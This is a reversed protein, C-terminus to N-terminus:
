VNHGTLGTDRLDPGQAPSGMLAPRTEFDEVLRIIRAGLDPPSFMNELWNPDPAKLELNLMEELSVILNSDAFLRRMPAALRDRYYDVYDLYIMCPVGARVVDLAATSTCTIGIAATALATEMDVDTVHLNGPLDGLDELLDSYPYRERHLHRTNENPLHRLKIFVRRDPHARALAVVAHLVHKRARKTFPSIAQTFFYIDRRTEKEADSLPIPRLVAPHGFDVHQWGGKEGEDLGEKFTYYAEIAPKPFLFVGDCNRRRTFGNQPFFDLGGLFGIICPRATGGERNVIREPGEPLLRHMQRDSLANEDVYWAMEVPCDANVERLVQRMRRAFILTSDDSFPIVIPRVQTV